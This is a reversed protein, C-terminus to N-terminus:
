TRWLGIVRPMRTVPDRALHVIVSGIGRPRAVAIKVMTYGDDDGGLMLAGTCTRTRSGPQLVVPEGLARGRRDFVSVTYRTATISGLQHVLTLDDFCLAHAGGPTVLMALQDLPAVREFWYRATARQRAVLQEVLYEAARPDSLKGQEVIARLQDRTFRIIIKAGWFKDFRDATLFPVYAQTMPKWAGPNYSKADFLGLGRLVPKTPRAEWRREYLGATVLSALMSGYDDRYVHGYRLDFNAVSTFGLSKGFDIHYHKVYHRTPDEPDRVWMDLTNHQKVDVHDLWAFMSYLGRLDRRLEHPIRDNPDGARVGEAPHGGLWKGDLIRSVFGRIRGDETVHVQALKADVEAATLKRKNGFVDKITADSSMVLDERRFYVVHDEPVNLGCAWLLRNTIVATATEAEPYDRVDFKLLFKEGRADEIVFGISMGGVKTSKIKWPTHPEPSSITAPGRRLEDLTMVRTGIRNTFWTSDPVEDLANVALARRHPKLELARTMLRVLTGDLYYLGLGPEHAAPPKPVDRRDDVAAVPPANAFRVGPLRSSSCGIVMLLVVLRTM